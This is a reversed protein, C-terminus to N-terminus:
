HTLTKATKSAFHLYQVHQLVHTVYTHTYAGLTFLFICKYLSRDSYTFLFFVSKFPIPTPLEM